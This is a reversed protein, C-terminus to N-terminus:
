GSSKIALLFAITAYRYCVQFGILSGQFALLYGGSVLLVFYCLYQILLGTCYARSVSGSFFSLQFAPQIGFLIKKAAPLFYFRAKVTYIWDALLLVMQSFGQPQVALVEPAQLFM